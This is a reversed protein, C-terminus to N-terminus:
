RKSLVYPNWPTKSATVKEQQTCSSRLSHNKLYYNFTSTSICVTTESILKNISKSSSPGMRPPLKLAVQKFKRADSRCYKDVPKDGLIKIFLKTVSQKDAITKQSVEQRKQEILYEHLVESLKPQEVIPEESRLAAASFDYWVSEQSRSLKGGDCIEELSPPIGKYAETFAQQVNQLVGRGRILAELRSKTKLLAYKM